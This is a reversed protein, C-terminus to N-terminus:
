KVLFIHPNKVISRSGEGGKKLFLVLYSEISAIAFCKM